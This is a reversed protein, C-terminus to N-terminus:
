KCAQLQVPFYVRMESDKNMAERENRIESKSGSSPRLVSRSVDTFMSQVVDYALFHCEEHEGSQSSSVWLTIVPSTIKNDHRIKIFCPRDARTESEM